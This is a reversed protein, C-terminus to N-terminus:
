IGIFNSIMMLICYILFIVSSIIFGVSVGATDCGKYYFKNKILFLIMAIPFIMALIIVLIFSLEIGLNINPGIISMMLSFFNNAAHFVMCLIISGSGLRLVALTIGMLFIIIFGNPNFHMMAFFLSSIAVSFVSGYRDLMKILIGRFFLEELVPALICLVFIEFFLGPINKPIVSIDNDGFIATAISSFPSSFLTFFYTACIPLLIVGLLYTIGFPKLALMNKLNDYGFNRKLFIIGFLMPIIILLSNGASTLYYNLGPNFSLITNFSLVLIMYLLCLWGSVEFGKYRKM